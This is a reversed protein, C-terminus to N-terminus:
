TSASTFCWFRSSRNQFRISFKVLYRVSFNLQQPWYSMNPGALWRKSEADSSHQIKAYFNKLFIVSFKQCTLFMKFWLENSRFLNFFIFPFIRRTLFLNLFIFPFQKQRTLFFKSSFLHSFNRVRWFFKQLFMKINNVSEEPSALSVDNAQSFIWTAKFDLNSQFHTLVTKEFDLYFEKIEFFSSNTHPFLFLQLDNERLVASM